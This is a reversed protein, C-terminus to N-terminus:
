QNSIITNISSNDEYYQRLHSSSSIIIKQELHQLVNDRIKNTEQRRQNIAVENSNKTPPHKEENTKKQQKQTFHKSTHLLQILIDHQLVFDLFLFAFLVFFRMMDIVSDFM